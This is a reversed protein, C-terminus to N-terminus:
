CKKSRGSYTKKDEPAIKAEFFSSESKSSRIFFIRLM